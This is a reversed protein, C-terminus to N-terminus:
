HVSNLLPWGRLHQLSPPGGFCVCQILRHSCLQFPVSALTGLFTFLDNWRFSKKFDTMLEVKMGKGKWKIVHTASVQLIVFVTAVLLIKVCRFDAGEVAKRLVFTEACESNAM